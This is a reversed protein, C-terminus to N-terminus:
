MRRGGLMRRVQDQFARVMSWGANCCARWSNWLSSQRFDGQSFNPGVNPGSGFPADYFGGGSHQSQWANSHGGPDQSQSQWQNASDGASQNQSRGGNDPGANETDYWGDTPGGPGQRPDNDDEEDEEQRLLDMMRWYWSSGQRHWFLIPRFPGGEKGGSPNRTIYRRFRIRDAVNLVVLLLIIWWLNVLLAFLVGRLIGGLSLDQEKDGVLFPLGSADLTPLSAACWSELSSFLALIEQDSEGQFFAHNLHEEMLSPLTPTTVADEVYPRLSGGYALYWAERGADIVLLMDMSGLEVEQFLNKTYSAIDEGGLSYTTRVALLCGYTSNLSLNSRAMTDTTEMSFLNAGDDIWNLFYNMGSEGAQQAPPTSVGTSQGGGARTYGLVCCLAVVLLTLLIAVSTKRFFKM